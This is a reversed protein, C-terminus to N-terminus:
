GNNDSPPLILLLWVEPGEHQAAEGQDCEPRRRPLAHLDTVDEQPRLLARRLQPSSARVDPCHQCTSVRCCKRPSFNYVLRLIKLM